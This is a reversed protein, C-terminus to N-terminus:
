EFGKQPVFGSFVECFCSILAAIVFGYGQTGGDCGM